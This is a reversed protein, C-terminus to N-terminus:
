EKVEIGHKELWKDRHEDCCFAFDKVDTKWDRVPERALKWQQWDSLPHPSEEERECWDCIYVHKMRHM